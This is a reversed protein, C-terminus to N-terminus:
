FPTLGLFESLYISDLNFHLWRTGWNQSYLNLYLVITMLNLSYNPVSSAKKLTCRGWDANICTLLSQVIYKTKYNTLHQSLLAILFMTCVFGLTQAWVVFNKGLIYCLLLCLGFFYRSLQYYISCIYHCPNCMWKRYLSSEPNPNSRVWTQFGCVFFINLCTPNEFQRTTSIQNARVRRESTFLSHVSDNRYYAINHQKREVLSM